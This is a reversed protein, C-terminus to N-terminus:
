RHGKLDGGDLKDLFAKVHKDDGEWELGSATYRVYRGLFRIEKVEDVDPGLGEGSCEFETQLDRLLERLGGKSGLCLFDDVHAVIITSTTPNIYVCQTTTLSEFGRKVLMTRVVKQWILPADRLGYMSKKLLGVLEKGNKRGDEDPLEIYVDRDMDGYLFAKSLSM